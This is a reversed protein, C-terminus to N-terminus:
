KFALNYKEIINESFNAFIKEPKYYLFTLNEKTTPHVFSLEYNKLAYYNGLKDHAGYKVDGYLPYGLSALQCRIQHHRGTQLNINVLTYEKGNLKTYELAEYDLIAKKGKNENTVFSKKQKEDFYLYNELRAKGALHGECVCLYKKSFSHNKIQESLRSAAKSTRAFVMLGTTNRDLRHVLGLYVAGPKEYKVKIYDKTITLLDPDGSIDAQALIGSEKYVVILHNDEYLVKVDM